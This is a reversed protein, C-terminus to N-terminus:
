NFYTCYQIYVQNAKLVSQTRGQFGSVDYFIGARISNNESGEFGVFLDMGYRIRAADKDFALSNKAKDLTETKSYANGFANLYFSPGIGIFRSASYNEEPFQIVLHLPVQVFYLYYSGKTKLTISDKLSSFKYAM